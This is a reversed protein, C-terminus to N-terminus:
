SRAGRVGGGHERCAVVKVRSSFVQLRVVGSVPDCLPMLEESVRSLRGGSGPLACLCSLCVEEYFGGACWLNDLTNPMM